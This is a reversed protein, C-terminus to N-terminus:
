SLAAKWAVVILPGFVALMFVFFMVDDADVRRRKM